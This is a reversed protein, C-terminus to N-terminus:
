FLQNQSDLVFNLQSLDNGHPQIPTKFVPYPTQISHLRILETMAAVKPSQIPYKTQTPKFM